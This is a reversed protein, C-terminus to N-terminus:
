RKLFPMEFKGTKLRTEAVAGLTADLARGLHKAPGVIAKNGDMSLTHKVAGEVINVEGVNAVASPVGAENRTVTIEYSKDM